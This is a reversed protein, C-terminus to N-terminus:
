RIFGSTAAGKDEQGSLGSSVAWNIGQRYFRRNVISACQSLDIYFNGVTGADVTDTVFNLTMEAPQIKSMKSYKRKAM